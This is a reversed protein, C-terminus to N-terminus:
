TRIELLSEDHVVCRGALQFVRRISLDDCTCLHDAAPRDWRAGDPHDISRCVIQTLSVGRRRHAVVGALMGRSVSRDVYVAILEAAAGWAFGAEMGLRREEPELDDLVGDQTYLLHSAFPAEGRRLCDLICRRAYRVNAYVDGAYPSEVLVRKM